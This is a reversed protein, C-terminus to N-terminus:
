RAADDDGGFDLALGLIRFWDIAGAHKTRVGPSLLPWQRTLRYLSVRADGAFTVDKWSSWDAPLAECAILVCKTCVCTGHEIHPSFDSM